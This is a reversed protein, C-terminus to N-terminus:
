MVGIEQGHGQRHALRDLLRASAVDLDGHAQAQLRYALLRELLWRPLHKPATGGLLVRWRQQLGDHDLADLRGLETQLEDGGSASTETPAPCAGGVPLRRSKSNPRKAM